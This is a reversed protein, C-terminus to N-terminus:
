KMRCELLIYEGEKFPPEQVIKCNIYMNKMLDQLELEVGRVSLGMSCGDNDRDANM